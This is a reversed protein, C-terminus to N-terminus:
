CHEGRATIAIFLSTFSMAAHMVRADPSLARDTGDTGRPDCKDTDNMKVVFTREEQQAHHCRVPVRESAVLDDLRQAGSNM